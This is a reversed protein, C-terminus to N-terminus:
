MNVDISKLFSIRCSSLDIKYRSAGKPLPPLHNVFSGEDFNKTVEKVTAQVGNLGFVFVVGLILLAKNM